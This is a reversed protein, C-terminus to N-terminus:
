AAHRGAAGLTYTDEIVVSFRDSLAALTGAQIIEAAIVGAGFPQPLDRTATAAAVVTSRFGLDLAARATASVCMHTAFGAIVIEIRGTARIREALGTGSFANPRSKVVVTEANAPELAAIFRAGDGAPDFAAAGPRGHHIAHIVPMGAGRAFALLRAGEEVAADIGQLPLLGTTYERQPDIMLLVSNAPLSPLLSLGGIQALTRPMQSPPM